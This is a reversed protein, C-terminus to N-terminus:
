KKYIIGQIFLILWFIANIFDVIASYFLSLTFFAYAMTFLGLFTPGSAWLNILSKKKKYGDYIQPILAICFILSATSIVLDQWIM